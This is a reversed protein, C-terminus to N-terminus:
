RSAIMPESTRKFNDLKKRQEPTLFKYLKAQMRSNAVILKALVNAQTAALAKVEKENGSGTAAMLPQLNGREETMLAQIAKNQSDTLDLYQALSPNLQLSSFPLAVMVIESPQAASPDPKAEPTRALDQELMERWASLLEFQMQAMQYQETSLKQGQESSLQGNQVAQAIAAVRASFSQTIEAMESQYDEIVARPGRPSASPASLVNTITTANPESAPTEMQFSPLDNMGVDTRGLMTVPVVTALLFMIVVFKAKM